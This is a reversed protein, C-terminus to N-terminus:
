ADLFKVLLDNLPHKERLYQTPSIGSFRKFERIFHSQDYYGHDIALGAKNKIGYEIHRLAHHFRLLNSFGKPSIGVTQNFRQELRRTSINCDEKLSELNVLGKNAAMREAITRLLADDNKSNYLYDILFSESLRIMEPVTSANFVQDELANLKTGFIESLNVMEDALESADHDIFPRIGWAFFCIGYMRVKGTRQVYYHRSFRSTIYSGKIICTNGNADKRRIPDGPSFNLEICGDPTVRQYTAKSPDETHEFYYHYRIYKQLLKCPSYTTYSIVNLHLFLM